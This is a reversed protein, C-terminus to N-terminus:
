PLVNLEFHVWSKYYSLFLQKAVFTEEQDKWKWFLGRFFLYSEFVSFFLILTFKKDTLFKRKEDKLRKTWRNMWLNRKSGKNKKERQEKSNFILIFHIKKRKSIKKKTERLAMSSLFPLTYFGFSQFPSQSLQFDIEAAASLREKMSEKM